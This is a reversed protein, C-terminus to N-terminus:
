PRRRRAIRRRTKVLANRTTKIATEYPINLVTAIQVFTYGRAYMMVCDRDREPIEALIRLSERLVSRAALRDETSITLDPLDALSKSQNNDDESGDALAVHLDPRTKRFHDVAVRRVVSKMWAALSDIKKGGTVASHWRLFAEQAIDEADAPNNVVTQAHRYTRKWLANLSHGEHNEPEPIAGDGPRPAVWSGGGFTTSV